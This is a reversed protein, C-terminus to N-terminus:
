KNAQEVLDISADASTADQGIKKAKPAAAKLMAALKKQLEKKNQAVNLLRESSKAQIKPSFLM